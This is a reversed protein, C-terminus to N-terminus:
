SLHVVSLAAIPNGLFSVVWGMMPPQTTRSLNSGLPHECALTNM